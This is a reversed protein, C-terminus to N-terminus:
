STVSVICDGVLLMVVLGQASSTQYRAVWGLVVECFWGLVVECFWRM